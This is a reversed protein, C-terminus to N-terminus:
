PTDAARDQPWARGVVGALRLGRMGCPRGEQVSRLALGSGVAM